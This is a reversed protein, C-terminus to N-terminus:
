AFAGKVVIAVSGALNSGAVATGKFLDSVFSTIRFVSFILGINLMGLPVL